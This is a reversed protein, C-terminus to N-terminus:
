GTPYCTLMAILCYINEVRSGGFYNRKRFCAVCWIVCVLAVVPQWNVEERTPRHWAKDSESNRSLFSIAFACGTGSFLLHSGQTDGGDSFCLYITPRVLKLVVRQTYIVMAALIAGKRVQTLTIYFAHALEPQDRLHSGSSM